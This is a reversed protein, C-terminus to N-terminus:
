VRERCSARGIQADGGLAMDFSWVQPEPGDNGGGNETDDDEGDDEESGEGDDGADAEEAESEEDEEIDDEDRGVRLDTDEERAAVFGLKSGDPSWTPSGAESARTLRHPERSGDAPVVWLTNVSEDEEPDSETTLVAIRDGDPSVAVDLIRTLGYWEEASLATM